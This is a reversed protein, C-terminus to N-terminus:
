LETKTLDKGLHNEWRRGGRLYAVEVRSLSTTGETAPRINKTKDRMYIGGKEWQIRELTGGVM